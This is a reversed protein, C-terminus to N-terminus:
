YTVPTVNVRVKIHDGPHNVTRTEYQRDNYTYTVLYGDAREEQQHESVIRCHRETTTTYAGSAFSRRHNYDNGLSAGLTAGAVTAWDQGSGSGFQHGVVAGIIGGVITSTYSGPGAHPSAQYHAVPEEWCEERAVPIDVIRTLMKVQDVKAYDFETARSLKGHAAAAPLSNLTIGFVIAMYIPTKSM